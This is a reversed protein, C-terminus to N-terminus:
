TTRARRRSGAPVLLVFATVLAFVIRKQMGVEQIRSV